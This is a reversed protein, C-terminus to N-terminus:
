EQSDPTPLPCQIEITLFDPPADDSVSLAVRDSSIAAAVPLEKVFQIASPLKDASSVTLTLKLGSGQIRRALIQALPKTRTIYERSGQNVSAHPLLLRLSEMNPPLEAEPSNETRQDVNETGALLHELSSDMPKLLSQDGFSAPGAATRKIAMPGTATKFGPTELSAAFVPLIFVLLIGCSWLLLTTYRYLGATGWLRVSVPMVSSRIPQPSDGSGFNDGQYIKLRNHNM